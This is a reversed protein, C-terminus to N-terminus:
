GWPCPRSELKIPNCLIRYLDEWPFQGSKCVSCMDCVPKKKQSPHPNTMYEQVFHVECLVKELGQLSRLFSLVQIHPYRGRVEVEKGMTCDTM